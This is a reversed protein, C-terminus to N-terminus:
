LYDPKFLLATEPTLSAAPWVFPRDFRYFFSCKQLLFSTEYLTEPYFGQYLVFPCLKIAVTLDRVKTKVLENSSKGSV